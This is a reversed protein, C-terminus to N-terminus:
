NTRRWINIDFDVDAASGADNFGRVTYTDGDTRTATCYVAASGAPTVQVTLEDAAYATEGAAGVGGQELDLTYVGAGTRTITDFGRNMTVVASGTTGSVRAMAILAGVEKDFTGM